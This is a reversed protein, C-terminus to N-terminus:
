QIPTTTALVFADMVKSLYQCVSEEQQGRNMIRMSIGGEQALGQCPGQRQQGM